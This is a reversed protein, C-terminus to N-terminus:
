DYALERRIFLHHTFSLRDTPASARFASLEGDTEVTVDSLGSVEDGFERMAEASPDGLSVWRITTTEGDVAFSYGECGATDNEDYSFELQPIDHFGVRTVVDGIRRESADFWTSGNTGDAVLETATETTAPRISVAQGELFAGHSHDDYRLIEFDDVTDVATPEVVDEDLTATTASRAADADFSGGYGMLAPCESRREAVFLAWDITTLDLGPDGPPAFVESPVQPDLADRVSQLREPAEFSAFVNPTETTTYEGPDYIWHRAPSENSGGGLTLRSCGTLGGLTAVGVEALDQRRSPM